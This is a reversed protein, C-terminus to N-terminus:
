VIWDFNDDCENKYHKFFIDELSTNEEQLYKKSEQFVIKGNVIFAFNDVIKEILDLIHSAIFITVGKKSFKLLLDKLRKIYVPDLGEFPEDLILLKPNPIIAMALAIKKSMGYSLDKAYKARDEWLDFYKLIKESRIEVEEQALGHVRGTLILHEWVTLLDFLALHEPLIGTNKKYLTKNENILRGFVKCKGTDPLLLGSLINITTSKGSGNPGLLAFISGKPVSLNIDNLTIVGNFKKTINILEIINKENNKM